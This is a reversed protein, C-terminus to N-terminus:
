DCFDRQFIKANQLAIKINQCEWMTMLKLNLINVVIKYMLNSTHAPTM